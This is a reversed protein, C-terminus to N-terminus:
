HKNVTAVVEPYVEVTYKKRLAEVWAKELANQYDTTVASRVDAMEKPAKLKKGHIADYPYDKVPKVKVDKAKFVLSDVLANDGKKFLGKEVRIRIISDGNFTKRLTENWDEFALGKVSKAVAKIDAKDKVHYVMGKFRPEDWKYQKKNKKFFAKLGEEDKSGKEWVERNSIEYLLLGDHYERILNKLEPDKAEMEAAQEDMIQQATKTNGSEKVMEEVKRNAIADRLNRREIFKMIAPRLTDYPDIQKREMVKIIHWGVPSLVPKSTEGDKLAYAAKDFEEFTQGHSIWGIVGGQKAAGPDESKKSALETFDAGNMLANYLSDIRAKKAKETEKDADPSLRVFIHAPKILGDPGIRKAENDYLTHAEAEVDAETVLAPRIQMDRYQRFENKYSTLTDMREDLAAQVKLKYNVFLEVYEEVNKKDIVGESNNKNYSYEFESRTIDKGAIKMIVPDDTQATATTCCLLFAAILSKANMRSDNPITGKAKPQRDDRHGHHPAAAEM